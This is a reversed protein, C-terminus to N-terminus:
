LYELKVYKKVDMPLPLEDILKDLHIQRGMEVIRCRIAVCCHSQLSRVNKHDQEILRLLDM